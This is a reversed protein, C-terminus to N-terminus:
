SALVVAVTVLVAPSAVSDTESGPWRRLPAKLRGSGSWTAILGSDQPVVGTVLAGTM